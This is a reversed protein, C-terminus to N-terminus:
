RAGLEYDELLQDVFEHSAHRGRYDLMKTARGIM